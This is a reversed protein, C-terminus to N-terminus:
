LCKTEGISDFYERLESVTLGKLQYKKNEANM